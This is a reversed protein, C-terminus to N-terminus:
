PFPSVIGLKMCLDLAVGAFAFISLSEFVGVAADLAENSSGDLGGLGKAFGFAASTGLKLHVNDLDTRRVAYRFTVGFLASSVTAALLSIILQSHSVHDTLSFPLQALTGVIASISAAKASELREAKKAAAAADGNPLSLSSEKTTTTTTTQTQGDDELLQQEAERLKAKAQSIEKQFEAIEAARSQLLRLNTRAAHLRDSAEQLCTLLGENEEKQLLEEVMGWVV